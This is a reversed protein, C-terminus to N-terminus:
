ETKKSFKIPTIFHIVVTNLSSVLFGQLILDNINKDEEYSKSIKKILESITSHDQWTSCFKDFLYGTSPRKKLAILYKESYEIAQNSEAFLAFFLFSTLLLSVLKKNM